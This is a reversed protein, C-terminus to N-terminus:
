MCCKVTPKQCQHTCTTHWEIHLHESITLWCFEPSPDHICQLPRPYRALWENEFKMAVHESTKEDLRTVESLTTCVDIITLARFSVAGLNPIDVTWPGILDVAVTEWPLETANRPPLEVNSMGPNKSRQCTDCYKVFDIVKEKLGRYYLVTTITKYLRDAGSHATVDTTGNSLM